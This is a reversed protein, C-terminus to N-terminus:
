CVWVRHYRVGWRTWYEQLQYCNPAYSPAYDYDYDYAYYPGPVGFGFAFGPGRFGFHPGGWGGWHHQASAATPLAAAAIAVAAGIALLTRRM